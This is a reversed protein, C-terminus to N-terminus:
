EVETRSMIEDQLYKPLRVFYDSYGGVRVQLDAHKEPEEQAAKLIDQSIANIQM